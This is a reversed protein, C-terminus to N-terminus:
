EKVASRSCYRRATRMMFKVADNELKITKAIDEAPTVLYVNQFDRTLGIIIHSKDRNLEHNLIEIQTVLHDIESINTKPLNEEQRGASKEMHMYLKKIPTSLRLSVGIGGFVGVIVMLLM